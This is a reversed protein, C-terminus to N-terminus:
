GEQIQWSAGRGRLTDTVLPDPRVRVREASPELLPPTPQRPSESRSPATPPYVSLSPAPVAVSVEGAWPSASSACWGGGGGGDGYLTSGDHISPYPPGYGVAQSAALRARASRGTPHERTLLPTAGPLGLPGPAPIGTPSSPPPYVWPLSAQPLGFLLTPPHLPPPRSSRPPSHMPPPRSPSPMPSPRVTTPSHMPPPHSTARHSTPPHVTPRHLPRTIPSQVPPPRTTPPSHMPPPWGTPSHMPPPQRSLSPMLTPAPDATSFLHRLSPSHLATPTPAFPPPSPPLTPGTSPEPPMPSGRSPTRSM